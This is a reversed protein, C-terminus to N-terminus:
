GRLDIVYYDGNQYYYGAVQNTLQCIVMFRDNILTYSWDDPTDYSAKNSIKDNLVSLPSGTPTTGDDSLMHVQHYPWGDYSYGGDFGDDPSFQFASSPMLLLGDSTATDPMVPYYWNLGTGTLQIPRGCHGDSFIPTLILSFAVDYMVRLSLAYDKGPVKVMGAAAHGYQTHAQGLVFQEQQLVNLNKDILFYKNSQSFIAVDNVVAAYASWGIVWEATPVQATATM